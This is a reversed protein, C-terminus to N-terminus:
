KKIKNSTNDKQEENNTTEEVYEVFNSIEEEIKKNQKNDVIYKIVKITSFVLVGILLIVVIISFINNKKNSIKKM